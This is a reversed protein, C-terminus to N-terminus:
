SGGVEVGVVDELARLRVALDLLDFGKALPSSLTVVTRDSHGREVRRVQTPARLVETAKRVLGTVDATDTLELVVTHGRRRPFVDRELIKLVVLVLVAFTSGM